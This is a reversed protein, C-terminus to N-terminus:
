LLERLAVDENYNGVDLYEVIFRNISRTSMGVELCAMHSGAM